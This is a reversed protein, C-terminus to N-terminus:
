EPYTLTGRCALRSVGGPDFAVPARMRAARAGLYSNYYRPYYIQGGMLPSEFYEASKM